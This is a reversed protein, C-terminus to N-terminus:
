VAIAPVDIWRRERQSQYACEALQVGKAGELLTPITAAPRRGRKFSRALNTKVARDAPRPHVASSLANRAGPRGTM